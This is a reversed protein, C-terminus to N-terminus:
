HSTVTRSKNPDGCSRSKRHASFCKISTGHSSTKVCWAGCLRQACQALQKNSALQRGPFFFKGVKEKFAEMDRAGDMRHDVEDASPTCLAIEQKLDETVWDANELEKQREKCQDLDGLSVSQLISAVSAPLSGEFDSDLAAM